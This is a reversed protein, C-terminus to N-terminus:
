LKMIEIIEFIIIIIITDSREYGKKLWGDMCVYM